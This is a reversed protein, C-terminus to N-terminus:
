SGIATNPLEAVAIPPAVPGSPIEAITSQVSPEPIKTSPTSGDQAGFMWDFESIRRVGNIYERLAMMVFAAEAFLFMGLYFLQLEASDSSSSALVQARTLAPHVAYMSAAISADLTHIYVVYCVISAVILAFPCCNFFVRYGRRISGLAITRRVYFLWSLLLFGLLGAITALPKRQPEYVPIVNLAAALPALIATVVPMVGMYGKFSNAFALLPNAQSEQATPM